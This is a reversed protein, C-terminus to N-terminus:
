PSIKNHTGQDNESKGCQRDNQSSNVEHVLRRYHRAATITGFFKRYSCSQTTIKREKSQLISTTTLQLQNTMIQTIM